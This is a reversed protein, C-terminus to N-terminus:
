GGSVPPIFAVEDGDQVWTDYPVYEGNVAVRVWSRWRKAETIDDFLDLFIQEATCPKFFDFAKESAKFYDKLQSFFKVQVTM